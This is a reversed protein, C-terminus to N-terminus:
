LDEVRPKRGKTAISLLTRGAPPSARYEIFSGEVWDLDHATVDTRGGTVNGVFSADRCRAASIMEAALAASGSLVKSERSSCTAEMELPVLDAVGVM